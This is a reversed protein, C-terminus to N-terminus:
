TKTTRLHTSVSFLLTGPKFKGENLNEEYVSYRIYNKRYASEMADTINDHRDIPRIIYEESPQVLIKAM